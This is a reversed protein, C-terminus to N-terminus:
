MDDWLSELNLFYNKKYIKLCVKIENELFMFNMSFYFVIILKQIQSLYQFWVFHVFKIYLIFHSVLYIRFNSYFKVSDNIKCIM